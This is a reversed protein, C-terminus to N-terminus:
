PTQGKGTKKRLSPNNTYAVMPKTPFIDNLSPNNSILTWHKKLITQVKKSYDTYRTTFILPQETETNQKLQNRDSQKDEFRVSKIITKVDKAKYGRQVMKSKLQKTM